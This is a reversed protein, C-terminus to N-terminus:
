LVAAPSQESNSPSYTTIKLLDREVQSFASRKWLYPKKM